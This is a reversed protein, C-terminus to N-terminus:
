LRNRKLIFDYTEIKEHHKMFGLFNPVEGNAPCPRQISNGGGTRDVGCWCAPRSASSPGGPAGGLLAVRSRDAKNRLDWTLSHKPLFFYGQRCPFTLFVM